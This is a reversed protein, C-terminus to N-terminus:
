GVNVVGYGVLRVVYEVVAVYVILRGETRSISISFDCIAVCFKREGIWGAGSLSCERHRESGGPLSAVAGIHRSCRSVIPALHREEWGGVVVVKVLGIVM